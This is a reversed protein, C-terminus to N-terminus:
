FKTSKTRSYKDPKDIKKQPVYTITPYTTEGNKGTLINKVINCIYKEGEENTYSVVYKLLEETNCESLKKNGFESLVDKYNFQLIGKRIEKKFPKKPYIDEKGYTVSKKKLLNVNPQEKSVINEKRHFMRKYPEKKVPKEEKDDEKDEDEDEDEDEDTLDKVNIDQNKFNKLDKLDIFDKVDKSDENIIRHELVDIIDDKHLANHLVDKQLANHLANHLVDKQLANHLANHLVNQEVNQEVDKHLSNHLVNQEVDNHRKKKSIITKTETLKATRPM